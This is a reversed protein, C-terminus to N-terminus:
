KRSDGSLQSPNVQHCVRCFQDGTKMEDLNHRGRKLCVGVGQYTFKERRRLFRVTARWANGACRLVFSKRM